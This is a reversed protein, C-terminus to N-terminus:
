YSFFFLALDLSKREGLVRLLEPGETDEEKSTPTQLEVQGLHLDQTKAGTAEERLVM